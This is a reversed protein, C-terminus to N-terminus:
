FKVEMKCYQVVKHLLCFCIFYLSCNTICICIQQLVFVHCIDSRILDDTASGVRLPAGEATGYDTVICSTTKIQRHSLVTQRNDAAMFLLVAATWPLHKGETYVLLEVPWFSQTPFLVSIRWAEPTSPEAWSPRSSFPPPCSPQWFRSTVLFGLSKPGWLFGEFQSPSIYM